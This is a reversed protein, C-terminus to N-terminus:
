GTTKSAISYNYLEKANRILAQGDKMATTALSKIVASEGDSAGKSHRCGSYNRQIPFGFDSV